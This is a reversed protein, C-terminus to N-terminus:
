MVGVPKGVVFVGFFWRSGHQVDCGVGFLEVRCNEPYNKTVQSVEFGDLGDLSFSCLFHSPGSM